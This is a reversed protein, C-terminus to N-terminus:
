LDSPAVPMHTHTAHDTVAVVSTSEGAAAAAVAAAAAAEEPLSQLTCIIAEM